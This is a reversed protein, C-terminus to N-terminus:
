VIGYLRKIMNEDGDWIPKVSAEPNPAAQKIARRKM